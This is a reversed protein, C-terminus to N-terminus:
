DLNIIRNMDEKRMHYAPNISMLGYDFIVFSDRNKSLGINSVNLDYCDLDNSKFLKLYERAFETNLREELSAPIRKFIEKFKKKCYETKFERTYLCYLMHKDVKMSTKIAFDKWLISINDNIFVKYPKVIIKPPEETKSLSIAFSGEDPDTSIKVVNNNNTIYACASGGCGIKQVVKKGDIEKILPLFDYEVEFLIHGYKEVINILNERHGIDLFVDHEKVYAFKHEYLKM